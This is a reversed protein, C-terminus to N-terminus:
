TAPVYRAKKRSLTFSFLLAIILVVGKATDQQYYQFGFMTLGTLVISMLVAGLATGWANPKNLGLVSTGVLAVAVAELLSSSGANIDGQGLRAVLIVGAVSALVSSVIYALGRHLGVRIGSLRAAEPNAGIAYLMRGWSTRTLVFWSAVVLVVMIIVPFSIPGIAGRDILIFNPDFKGPATSGNPMVMGSSISQGMVLILKGGQVVFMMGLTALLDPIRCVVILVANIIGVVLGGLLAVGVAVVGTLNYFVMSMAALQVALGAVSGISLDLGGVIMSFMVALGLIATVSAYKLMAFIPGVQAFQPQTAAFFVFLLVTIAIFGYRVVIDRVRDTAGIPTITIDAM